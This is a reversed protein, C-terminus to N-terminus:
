SQGPTKSSAGQTGAQDERRAKFETRYGNAGITHTTETVYYSGDFDSAADALTGDPKVTKGFGAIELMCGARLDPLGITAGSAEILRKSQDSLTAKALKKADALNRVPPKTVVETRNGYAQAIRGQRSIESQSKGQDKWLDQVTYSYEIAKNQTRDWGRVTVKGVQCATSLTPKFSLLSRGWELKYTPANSRNESLGFYLAQKGTTEDDELYVEYGRRRARELLFVIDYQNNM